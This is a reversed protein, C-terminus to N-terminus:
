NIKLLLFLEDKNKENLLEMKEMYYLEKQIHEKLVVDYLKYIDTQLIGQNQNEIVKLLEIKLNPFVSNVIKGKKM